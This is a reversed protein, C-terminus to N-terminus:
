QTTHTNLITVATHWTNPSGGGSYGTFTFELAKNVNDAVPVLTMALLNVDDLSANNPTWTTKSFAGVSLLNMPTSVFRTTGGTNEICGTMFWTASLGASTGSICRSIGIIQVARIVDSAIANYASVGDIALKVPTADTSVGYARIHGSQPKLTASVYKQGCNVESRLLTKAGNGFLSAYYSYGLSTIGSSFGGPYQAGVDNCFCASWNGTTDWGTGSVAGVRFASNVPVWMARTGAGTVPVAGTTGDMLVAQDKVRLIESAAGEFSIGTISNAAVTTLSSKLLLPTSSATGSTYILTFVGATSHWYTVATGAKRIEIIDGVICARGGLKNTGMEWINVTGATVHLAYDIDTYSDSGSVQALGLMRSPTTDAIIWSLICNGKAFRSSSAKANWGLVAGTKTVSSATTTCGVVQGWQIDSM